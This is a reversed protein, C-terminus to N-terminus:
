ANSSVPPKRCLSVNRMCCDFIAILFRRTLPRSPHSKSFFLFQSTKKQRCFCYYMQFTGFSTKCTLSLYLKWTINKKYTFTCVYKITLKSGARWHLCFFKVLLWDLCIKCIWNILSIWSVTSENMYKNIGYIRKALRHWQIYFMDSYTLVDVAWLVYM